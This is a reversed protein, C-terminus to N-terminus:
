INMNLQKFSNHPGRWTLSKLIVMLYEKSSYGKELSSSIVVQVHRTQSFGLSYIALALEEEDLLFNGDTDFLEFIEKILTLQGGGWGM